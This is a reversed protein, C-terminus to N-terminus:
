AIERHVIAIRFRTMLGGILVCLLALAVVLDALYNSVGIARSMSDAGVFVGAIFIASPVVGLPSLNALTAVVIGAYGFGPSLDATLYGKLGAVESAGALGALGGSLVGVLAMSAGVPVGAYRAARANEGVARIRFGWVTRSMFVHLLGAAVVALVLGWHLRLGEFLRPLVAEDVLPASQPWGLAMEDKMPGELMMQVFLMVVFNMLLTVVVEDAGFRTKFLVPVLLLAAGALAGGILVMPLLIWSPATIAGAGIAVAALAGAYLQGEGGINWLRARFAVAAALGTFILPTARTLTEALAFGSGAAGQAMLSFARLVPAGALALPIATLLLAALGAGVPVALSLWLPTRERPIFRIM